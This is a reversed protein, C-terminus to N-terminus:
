GGVLAGRAGAVYEADSDVPISNPADCPSLLREVESAPIRYGARRNIQTARLHGQRCYERVTWISLRLREAAEAVTLYEPQM